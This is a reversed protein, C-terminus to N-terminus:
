QDADLREGALLILDRREQCPCEREREVLGGRGRPERDADARRGEADEVYERALLPALRV